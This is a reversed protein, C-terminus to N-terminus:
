AETVVLRPFYQDLTQKAPDLPIPDLWVTKKDFRRRTSRMYLPTISQAWEELLDLKDEVESQDPQGQLDVDGSMLRTTFTYSYKVEILTLSEVVSSRIVPTKTCDSTQLRLRYKIRRGKVGYNEIFNLAQIPSSDFQGVLPTWTSEDDKMYDAEVIVDDSLGETYLKLSKFFKYADAMDAYIYSSEVTSEWVYMFSPDYLPNLTNSPFPVWMIDQGQNFYLRDLGPGPIAQFSLSTIRQGKVPARYIESYGIGNFELISSYNALGGDIAVFYRGPYGLLASVTGQRDAPLGTDRDPGVDTMVGTVYREIGSRLNFYLYANSTMSAKGNVAEKVTHIEDLKIEDIVTGSAAYVTGERMIWLANNYEKVSNIKGWNDKFPLAAAFTLATGWAVVTAKSVSVESNADKNQARWISMTGGTDRVTTLFVAKNTGDDVATDFTWTGANNYMRFRKLVVDDGLCVYVFDNVVLVDTVPTTIGPSSVKTWINSGLVAYETTTDHTIDWNPTVYLRKDTNSVIKRYTISEALGTGKTIQVYCGAFMNTTWNKTADYLTDLYGANSSAVGLAGNYYMGIFAAASSVMVWEIGKYIFFKFNYTNHAATIRYYLNVTAATWTSGNASIKTGGSTPSTGVEWHSEDQGESSYVVIWYSVSATLAETLDLHLMESVIDPVMSPTITLTELVTGPNGGSNTRLEVILNNTPNGRKRLYIALTKATYSESPTFTNALYNMSGPVVKVWHMSGPTVSNQPLIGTMYVPLGGLFVKGDFATCAMKDDLYRSTDTSFDENGRGGNWTTQAIPSWPPQFDDYKTSGATTKWATRNVARRSINRPEANGDKDVAILGIENIGDTLSIHHTSRTNGPEVLVKTM